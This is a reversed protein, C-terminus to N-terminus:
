AIKYEVMKGGCKHPYVMMASTRAKWEDAAKVEVTFDPNGECKVTVIYTNM